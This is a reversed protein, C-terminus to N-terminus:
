KIHFISMYERIILPRPEINYIKLMSPNKEHKQSRINYRIDEGVVVESIRLRLIIFSNVARATAM